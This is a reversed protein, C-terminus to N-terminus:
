DDRGGPGDGPRDDFNTMADVMAGFGRSFRKTDADTLFRAFMREIGDLHVPAADALRKSGAATLVAWRSRADDADAHRAVLGEREMRDVLRTCNSRTLLVADALDSMRRRGGAEQLQVLVDYWSLPLGAAAQLEEDLRRTVAAHAELFSRWAAMSADTPQTTM